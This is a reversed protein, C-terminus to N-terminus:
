VRPLKFRRKSPLFIFWCSQLSM